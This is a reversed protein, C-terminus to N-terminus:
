NAVTLQLLSRDLNIYSHPYEGKVAFVNEVYQMTYTLINICQYNNISTTSDDSNACGSESHSHASTLEKKLIFRVTLAKSFIRERGGMGTHSLMNM